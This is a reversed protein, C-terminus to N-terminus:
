EGKPTAGVAKLQKARIDLDFSALSALKGMSTASAPMIRHLYSDVFCFMSPLLLAMFGVM